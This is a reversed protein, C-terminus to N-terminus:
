NILSNKTEDLFEDTLVPEPVPAEEQEVKVEEVVV